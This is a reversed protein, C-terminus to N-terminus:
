KKKKTKATAVAAKPPAAKAAPAPAAKAAALAKIRDKDTMEPAGAKKPVVPAASAAPLDGKVVKVKDPLLLIEIRRNKARGAPTANSAVPRGSGYGSAKLMKGPVGGQEELFRVVHTARASSLEWNSPYLAKIESKVPTTDAHGLVEVLKGSEKIAAGLKRLVNEGDATMEAEGPKFLIKDVMTVTIAGGAGAVDGNSSGLEGKLQAILKEDDTKQATTKELSAQASTLSAKADELAKQAAQEREIAAKAANQAEVLKAQNKRAEDVQNQHQMVAYTAGGGAVLLTVVWPLWSTRPKPQLVAPDDPELNLEM